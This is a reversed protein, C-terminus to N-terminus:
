LGTIALKGMMSVTYDGANLCGSPFCRLVVGDLRGLERESEQLLFGIWSGSFM